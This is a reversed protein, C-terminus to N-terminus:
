LVEEISIPITFQDVADVYEFLGPDVNRALFTDRLWHKPDTPHPVWLFVTDLDNQRLDEFAHEMTEDRDAMDIRGSFRRPKERRDFEKVGSESEVERTRFRFGFQAGTSFNVAFQWGRAIEIMGIDIVGNTNSIDDVEITICKALYMKDLIIPRTPRYGIIEQEAYKGTWWNLEEWEVADGYVPPWVDFWDSDYINGRIVKNTGSGASTINIIGTGAAAADQTAHVTFTTSDIVRAYYITGYTLGGPLAGGQTWFSVGEGTVLGHGGAVTLVDTAANATFSADDKDYLRVRMMGYISINHRVIGIMRMLYQNDFVGKYRTSTTALNKSRCVYALLESKLNSAPYDAEYNGFSADWTVYPTVRRIGKIAQFSIDAM